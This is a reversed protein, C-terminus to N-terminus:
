DLVIPTSPPYPGVCNLLRSMERSAEIAMEKLQQARSMMRSQPGSIVLAAVLKRDNEYVAAGFSTTGEVMGDINSAIGTARIDALDALLDAKRTLTRPTFQERKTKGLYDALRRESFHALFIKGTTTSYLPRVEGVRVSYRLPSASEIVDIYEAGTGTEDLAGLIVTEGSQRAVAELTPHLFTPFVRHQMVAAGLKFAEPGLEYGGPAQIIYGGKDLARLLSFVSTKPVTDTTMIARAADDGGDDSLAAVAAETGALVKARFVEDGTGILGTSCVLVDGPSVDLLEAAKEATQHTTQFGFAGTFCNAGGSNLVVAEVTADQIAQQSWLIPNAKARNSTFVAAGVKLPGRNVVVAVDPKGTSKLGAVVGAAAFGAPATVSM